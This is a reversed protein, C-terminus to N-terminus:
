RSMPFGQKGTVIMSPLAAQDNDGSLDAILKRYTIHLTIASDPTPSFYLRDFIRAYFVPNGSTESPDINMERLKWFPVKKLVINNSRDVVMEVEDLDSIGSLNVYQQSATTSISNSPYAQLYRTDKIMSYIKQLAQNICSVARDGASGDGTLDNANYQDISLLFEKRLTTLTSGVSSGSGPNPTSTVSRLYKYYKVDGITVPFGLSM